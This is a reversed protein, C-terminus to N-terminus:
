GAYLGGGSRTRSYNEHTRCVVARARFSRFVGCLTPVDMYLEIRNKVTIEGSYFFYFRIYYARTERKSEVPRSYENEATGEAVRNGTLYIVHIYAAALIGSRRCARDVKHSSSFVDRSIHVCM